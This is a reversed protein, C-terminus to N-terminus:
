KGKKKEPSLVKVIEKEGTDCVVPIFDVEFNM